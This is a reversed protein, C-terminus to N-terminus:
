GLGGRGSAGAGFAAGGAAPMARNCRVRTSHPSLELARNYAAVSDEVAADALDVVALAAIPMPIIPM